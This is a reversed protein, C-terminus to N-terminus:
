GQAESFRVALGVESGGSSRFDQSPWVLKVGEQAESFRVRGSWSLGRRLKHFGSKTLGVEGWGSSRIDWSQKM